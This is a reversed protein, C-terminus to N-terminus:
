QGFPAIYVGVSSFGYTSNVSALLLVELLLVGNRLAVAFTFHKIIYKFECKSPFFHVTYPEM